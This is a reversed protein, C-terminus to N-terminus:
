ICRRHLVRKNHIHTYTKEIAQALRRKITIIETDDLKMLTKMARSLKPFTIQMYLNGYWPGDNTFYPIIINPHDLLTHYCIRRVDSGIQEDAFQKWQLAEQKLKPDNPTLSSHPFTHDLYSIIKSSENLAIKEHVLIPM